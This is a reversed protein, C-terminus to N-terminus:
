LIVEILGKRRRNPERTRSFFEIWQKWDRDDEATFIEEPRRSEIMEKLELAPEFCNAVLDDFDIPILVVADVDNPEEKDTVFSGDILLRKAKVARALETWRRVRMALWNRRRNGTGFRFTVEADTALHVGEPLFGDTNFAPIAM